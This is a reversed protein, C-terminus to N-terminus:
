QGQAQAFHEEAETRSIGLAQMLREVTMPGDNDEEEASIAETPQYGSEEWLEAIYEEVEPGFGVCDNPDVFYNFHDGERRLYINGVPRFRNAVAELRDLNAPEDMGLFKPGEATHLYIHFKAMLWVMAVAIWLDGSGNAASYSGDFVTELSGDVLFDDINPFVRRILRGEYRCFHQLATKIEKLSMRLRMTQFLGICLCYFLCNGDRPIPHGYGRKEKRSRTM